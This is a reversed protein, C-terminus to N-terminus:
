RDGQGDPDHIEIDLERVHAEFEEGARAVLGKANVHWGPVVSYAHHNTRGDNVLAGRELLDQVTADIAESAGEVSERFDRKKCGPHEQVFEFVKSELTEPRQTPNLGIDVPVVVASPRSDNGIQLGSVSELKFSVKPPYRGDRVKIPKLTMPLGSALQDRRGDILFAFDVGQTWASSGRGRQRERHGTHRAYVITAGTEMAIRALMSTVAGATDADNEAQDIGLLKTQTDIIVLQAGTERITNRLGEEFQPHDFQPPQFSLMLRGELRKKLTEPLLRKGELLKHHALAGAVRNLLGQQGEAAMYIVPHESTERDFWPLGFAVHISLDLLLWTKGSGYGAILEGVSAVPILGKVLYSSEHDLNSPDVLRLMPQGSSRDLPDREDSATLSRVIRQAEQRGIRRGLAQRLGGQILPVDESSLDSFRSVVSRLIPRIRTLPSTQIAKIAEDLQALAEGPADEDAAERPEAYEAFVNSPHHPHSLPVQYGNERALNLLREYGGPNRSSRLSNWVKEAEGPSPTGGKWRESFELFLQRAEFEAGPGCSARITHAMGVWTERSDMEGSNPIHALAEKTWRVREVPTDGPAALRLLEPQSLPSDRGATTAGILGILWQPASQPPGPVELVYEGKPHRSPPAVVYGRDAKVDLGPRLGSRSQHTGEVQFYLHLGGSGTRVTMTEVPGHEKKLAELSELGGNRPDVDLVLLGNGTAIGVNAQPSKTWWEEIQDPDTTASKFGGEVRPHKGVNPCWPNGCTCAGPRGPWPEYLPLVPWGREAFALAAERRDTPDALTDLGADVPAASALKLPDASDIDTRM